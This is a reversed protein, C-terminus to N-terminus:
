ILVLLYACIGLLAAAVAVGLVMAVAGEASIRVDTKTANIELKSVSERGDGACIELCRVMWANLSQKNADAKKPWAHREVLDLPNQDPVQM